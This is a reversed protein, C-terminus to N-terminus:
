ASPKLWSNFLADVQEQKESDLRDLDCEIQGHPLADHTVVITRRVTWDEWTSAEGPAELQGVLKVQAGRYANVIGLLEDGAAYRLWAGNSPLIAPEIPLKKKGRPYKRILFDKKRKAGGGHELDHEAGAVFEDMDAQLQSWLAEDAVLEGFPVISIGTSRLQDLVRQQVPNLESALVSM